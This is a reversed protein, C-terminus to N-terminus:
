DIDEWFECLGKISAFWEIENGNNKIVIVGRDDTTQEIVQGTKKNHLKM